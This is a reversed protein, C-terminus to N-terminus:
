RFEKPLFEPTGYAVCGTFFLIACEEDRTPEYTALHHNVISNAIREMEARTPMEQESM